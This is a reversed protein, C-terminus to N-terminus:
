KEDEEPKKAQVEVEVDDDEPIPVHVTESKTTKYTTTPQRDGRVSKRHPRVRVDRSM